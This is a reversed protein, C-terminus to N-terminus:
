PMNAAKITGQILFYRAPFSSYAKQRRGPRPSKQRQLNIPSPNGIICLGSDRDFTPATLSSSFVGRVTSSTFNHDKWSSLSHSTTKHSITTIPTDPQTPPCGSAPRLGCGRWVCTVGGADVPGVWGRLGTFEGGNRGRFHSM